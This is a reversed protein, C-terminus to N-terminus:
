LPRGRRCCDMRLFSQMLDSGRGFGGSEEEFSFKAGHFNAWIERLSVLSAADRTPSSALTRDAPLRCWGGFDLCCEM